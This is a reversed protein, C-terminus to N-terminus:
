KTGAAPFTPNLAGLTPANRRSAHFDDHLARISDILEVLLLMTALQLETHPTCDGFKRAVARYGNVREVIM